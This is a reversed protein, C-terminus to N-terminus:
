KAKKVVKTAKGGKLGKVFGKKSKAVNEGQKTVLCKMSEQKEM